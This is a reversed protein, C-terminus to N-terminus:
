PQTLSDIRQASWFRAGFRELIHIIKPDEEPIEIWGLESAFRTTSSGDDLVLPAQMVLTVRDAVRAVDDDMDYGYGWVRIEAALNQAAGHYGVEDPLNPYEVIVAPRVLRDPASPRRRTFIDSNGSLWADGTLRAYIAPIIQTIM